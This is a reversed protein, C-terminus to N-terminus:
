RGSTTALANKEDVVDLLRQLRSSEAQLVARGFDTLRYIRRRKDEGAPRSSKPAIAILKEDRMRQLAAYLTGTEIEVLGDTRASVEKIIGYGHRDADALAVLVHYSVHSLPLLRQPDVPMM